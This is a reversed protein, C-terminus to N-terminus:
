GGLAIDAVIRHIKGDQMEFTEHITSTALRIGLVGVDLVYDATVVDGAVTYRENRVAQIVRFQLGNTLDAAIQAGSFGTKLGAEVRTADGTLPVQSGDHSM